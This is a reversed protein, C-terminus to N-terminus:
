RSDGRTWRRRGILWFGVIISALGWGTLAGMGQPAGTPPLVIPPSVVPPKVIPPTVVPPVVVPPEVIIVCVEVSHDASQGTEVITATNPVDECGAAPADLNATYDFSTPTGEENWDATGLDGGGMPDNVTITKNIENALNFLADTVSTLTKGGNYGVQATVQGDYPPQATFSCAYTFSITAGAPVSSPADSPECTTGEGPGTIAVSNIAIATFSNPNTVTMTGTLAWASDASGNPTVVVTYNVPASGGEGASVSDVDSGKEITWLYTTDYSATPVQTMSIDAQSCVSTTAQASQGTSLTATNTRSSCQGAPATQAVDYVFLTPTGNANWTVPSFTGAPAMPDSVTVTKNIETVTYSVDSTGLASKEDEGETWAVNADNTPEETTLDPSGSCTYNRTVEGPTVTEGELTAAPITVDTGDTVTCTVGGGVHPVDTVTANEIDKYLNPNQITITGGMVLNTVSSGNPTVSVTYRFSAGQGAEVTRSSADAVKGILWNYTRTYSWAATKSVILDAENCVTVSADASHSDEQHVLTFLNFAPGDEFVQQDSSWTATNPYTQCTGPDAGLRVTYTWVGLDDPAEAGFDLWDVPGFTEGPQMTDTVTIYRDHEAPDSFTVPMAASDFSGDTTTVHATNSLGTYAPQGAFSCSYDLKTEGSAGIVLPEAVSPADEVTCDGGPLTDTVSTVTMSQFDNPNDIVITGHAEWGGDSSGNPSVTVTYHVASTDEGKVFSLTPDAEKTITWHYTRDFSTAVDKSVQPGVPNCATVSADADAIHDGDVGDDEAVAWANNPSTTCSGAEASVDRSYTFVEEGGQHTWTASGLYDTGDGGMDDYVDIVKNIEGNLTWDGEHIALDFDDTGTPTHATAANWTATATNTGDYSTPKGSFECTYAYTKSGSIPIVKDANAWGTVTCTPNVGGFDAVDTLNTLTVAEFNNPNSVTIEGSMLWHSDSKAGMTATVKYDFTAKGDAGVTKHDDGVVTKALTWDYARTLSVVVNKSVTLDAGKCIEVTVSDSNGAPDDTDATLSATNTYQRLCTGATQGSADPTWTYPGITGSASMTVDTGAAAGNLDARDDHVTISDDTLNAPTATAFNYTPAPSITVNGLPSTGGLTMSGSLPNPAGSFTCSYGFVHSGDVGGAKAPITVTGTQVGPTSVDNDVTCTDNSGSADATGTVGTMPVPNSNTLTFQGTVKHNTDQAASKTVLIDYSFTPSTGNSAVYKTGDGILRKDLTWDFDRDLTPTAAGATGGPGNLKKNVFTCVADTGDAITVTLTSGSKSFVAGTCAASDLNWGAADHENVTYVGPAITEFFATNPLTADSDDDLVFDETRTADGTDTLTFTFDQADNPQADKIVTLSGSKLSGVQLQRDRDGGGTICDIQVYANHYPSGSINSTSLTRGWDFPSAIHADYRLWAVQGVNTAPVTFTITETNDMTTGSAALALWEAKTHTIAAVASDVSATETPRSPATIFHFNDLFDYGFHGHNLVQYSVKLTHQGPTLGELKWLQDVYGGEVFDGGPGVNGNVWGADDPNDVSAMVEYQWHGGIGSTSTCAAADATAAPLLPTGLAALALAVVFRVVSFRRSMRRRNPLPFRHKGTM